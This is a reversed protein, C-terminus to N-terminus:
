VHSEINITDQIWEELAASRPKLARIIKKFQSNAKKFDLSETIIQRAESNPIM